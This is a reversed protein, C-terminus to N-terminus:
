AGDMASLRPVLFFGERFEPAFSALPASLPTPAVVDPRLVSPPADTPHDGAAGAEGLHGVYEVIATLEATLRPLEDDRVELQALAAVHRVDEPRLSM